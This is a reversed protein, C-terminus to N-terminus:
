RWNQAHPTTEPLRKRLNKSPGLTLCKAQHEGATPEYIISEYTSVTTIFFVYPPNTQYFLMKEIRPHRSRAGLPRLLADKRTDHDLHLAIAEGSM